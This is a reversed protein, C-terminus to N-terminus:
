RRFRVPAVVLVRGRRPAGRADRRVLESRHLIRNGNGDHPGGGALPDLRIEALCLDSPEFLEEPASYGDREADVWIRLESWLADGPDIAGNGNGGLEPRDYRGLDDLADSRVADGDDRRSAFLESGDNVRGDGNLDRWPIAQGLMPWSTMEVVGDGDLDFPVAHEPGSLGGLRPKTWELFVAATSRELAGRARADVALEFSSPGGADARSEAEIGPPTCAGDDFPAAGPDGDLKAAVWDTVRAMTGLEEIEAADALRAPSLLGADGTFVFLAEGGLSFVRGTGDAPPHYPLFLMEAGPAPSEPLNYQCTRLPVGAVALRAEPYLLYLPGTTPYGAEARLPEVPDLELLLAPLEGALGVGTRRVRGRYIAHAHRVGDDLSGRPRDDFGCSVTATCVPFDRPDAALEAVQEGKRALTDAFGEGLVEWRPEGTEDYIAPAGIWLLREPPGAARVVSPFPPPEPEPPAAALPPIATLAAAVAAAELATPM